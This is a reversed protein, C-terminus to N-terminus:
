RPRLARHLLRFIPMLAQLLRLLFLLAPQMVIGILDPLDRFIREERSEVMEKEFAALLEEDTGADSDDDATGGRQVDRTTAPLIGSSEPADLDNAREILSGFNTSKLYDVDKRLNAVEVQLASVESSKGQRSECTTVRVMLADVFTQLSTLTALIASEIMEPISWELQGARTDTSQALCGMEPDHDLYEQWAPLIIFCRPGSPESAPTPSSAEVPLSDVNVEPSSDAPTTRRKGVKREHSSLRMVGSIQPSSPTVEVDRQLIVLYELESACSM